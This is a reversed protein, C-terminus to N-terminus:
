VCEQLKLIQLCWRRHITGLEIGRPPQVPALCMAGIHMKIKSFIIIFTFPAGPNFVMFFCPIMLSFNFSLESKTNLLKLPQM